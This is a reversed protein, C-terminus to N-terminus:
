RTLELKLRMKVDMNGYLAGHRQRVPHIEAGALIANDEPIMGDGKESFLFDARQCPGGEEREVTAGVITRIGYGFVCVAPVASGSGLERRFERANRLLPRHQELVWSEEGLVDLRRRQDSVCAYTPLIQYWSPYSALVERLRTNLLGLPLLGPGRLLSAFAYPTGAHPAGLYIIREIHRSGGLREVYYRAILSGMSHAIITIPGSGEWDDIAAALQRASERNDQRFDYAFELLDKGSEYLLTEKLYDTLSSYQEQRLLNPIVVVEDVLSRAELPQDIDLLEANNFLMRPSPWVQESGRWLTSGGFGPIVVVRRRMTGALTAPEDNASGRKFVLRAKGIQFTDSDYLPHQTIRQNRIWTGNSTRLDRLVFADGKKELVAHARSVIPSDIVIDNEPARGITLRDGCLPVEWTGDEGHVAVRPLSTDDLHVSLPMGPLTAKLDELTDIRTSDLDLEPSEAEFQFVSNGITLVDGHALTARPVALGNVQVGNASGLDVLEFGGAGRDIRAHFRSVRSERLVIDNTSARGITVGPKSLVFEQRVGGPLSLVLKEGAGDIM